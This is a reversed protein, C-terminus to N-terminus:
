EIWEGKGFVLATVAGDLSKSVGVDEASPFAVFGGCAEMVLRAYYMGLGMGDPKMTVFPELVDEDALKYGPGNDAFILAPGEAFYDSTTITVARKPKKTDDPWRQDLWYISNDIINSIAGMIINKPALIRFDRAEHSLIPTSLIIKHREFRDANLQCATKLMSSIPANEEPTKRFFNGFSNLLELLSNSRKELQDQAEGRKIAANLARVGHDVEHFLTAVHMQTGGPRLLNDQMARVRTDVKDVLKIFKPGLKRKEAAKRLEELASNPSIQSEGSKKLLVRRMRSKDVTRLGELHSLASLVIARLRQYAFNDDFGDRSTKEILASSSEMKLSLLGVINNNSIAKTPQNVRRLDLGLWDNGPEGYDYVRIDDRYVRVGGNNELFNAIQTPEPIFATVERDQDFIYFTGEVPGIGELFDKPVTKPVDLKEFFKEALRKPFSLPTGKESDKHGEVKMGAPPKFEYSWDFGKPGFKFEYTWLAIELIDSVELLDELWWENGPVELSVDFDDDTTFPGSISTVNRWLRRVDGRTWEAKLQSVEIHTGTKKGAFHSGDGEEVVVSTEDMYRHDIQDSWTISVHLEPGGKARTWLKIQNGLKHAAFRGVGKEGLPLRKFKASRMGSERQKERNDTGPELWIDTITELTMGTGDDNVSITGEAKDPDCLTIKVKNADADYANKVM